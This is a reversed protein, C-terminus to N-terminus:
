GASAIGAEQARGALTVVEHTEDVRAAAPDEGFSHVGRDGHELPAARRWWRDRGACTRSEGHLAGATLRTRHAQPQQHVPLPGAAELSVIAQGAEVLDPDVALGDVRCEGEGDVTDVDPAAGDEDVWRARRLLWLAGCGRITQFRLIGGVTFVWRGNGATAAARSAIGSSVAAQEMSGTIGVGPAVRLAGLAEADGDGVGDALGVEAGVAAGVGVALGEGVAEGLAEGLADGVATGGM